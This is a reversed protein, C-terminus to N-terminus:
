SATAPTVRAPLTLPARFPWHEKEVTGTLELSGTGNIVSELAALVVPRAINKGPCSHIGAGFTLHPNPSRGIRFEDPNEFVEPDRNAAPFVLAVPDREKMRVGAFELDKAATRAFGLQPMDLRLFEEVSEAILAPNGRLTSQLEQDLLLRQLMNGLSHSTALWVILMPQRVAGVVKEPDLPQGDPRRAQVLATALDRSPDRPNARRDAILEAAVRQLNEHAEAVEAPNQHGPQGGHVYMRCWRDLDAPDVDDMAFVKTVTFAMLPGCYDRVLDVDDSEVTAAVLREAEARVALMIEAEVPGSLVPAMADRFWTHEPQDVHMLPRNHVPAGARPKTMIHLVSNVFLDNQKAAEVVDRRRTLAWFGGWQSSHAVPCKSRMEHLFRHPDETFEPDMPDFDSEQGTGVVGAHDSM